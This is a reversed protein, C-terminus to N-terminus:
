LDLMIAHSRHVNHEPIKEILLPLQTAAFAHIIRHLIGYVAKFFFPFPFAFGCPNPVIATILPGYAVM